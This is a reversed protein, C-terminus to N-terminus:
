IQWLTPKMIRIDAKTLLVLRDCFSASPWLQMNADGHPGNYYDGPAITHPVVVSLMRQTEVGFTGEDRTPWLKQSGGKM